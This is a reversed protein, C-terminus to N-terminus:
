RGRIPRNETGIVPRPHGATATSGVLQRSRRAIAPSVPARVGGAVGSGRGAVLGM